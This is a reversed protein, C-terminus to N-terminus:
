LVFLPTAIAIAEKLKGGDLERPIIPTIDLHRLLHSPFLSPLRLCFARCLWLWLWCLLGVRLLDDLLNPHYVPCSHAHYYSMSINISGCDAQTYGWVYVLHCWKNVYATEWLHVTFAFIQNHIKNNM